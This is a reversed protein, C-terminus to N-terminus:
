GSLTRRQEKLWRDLGRAEITLADPQHETQNYSVQTIRMRLLRGGPSRLTIPSGWELPQYDRGCLAAWLRGLYTRM